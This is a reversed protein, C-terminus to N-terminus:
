KKESATQTPAYIRNLADPVFREAWGAIFCWLAVKLLDAYPLNHGGKETKGFNCEVPDFQAGQWWCQQFDPLFDLTLIGAYLILVLVMGFVAGLVPAVWVSVSSKELNLWTILPEHRTDVQYLRMITSVAAGFAGCMAALTHATSLVGASVHLIFPLSLIAAVVVVIKAIQARVSEVATVLSYRRYLRSCLARLEERLATDDTTEIQSIFNSSIKAYSDDTSLSKLMDRFAAIRIRMERASLNDIVKIELAYIDAATIEDSDADSVAGVKGSSSSPAHSSIESRIQRSLAFLIADSKNRFYRRLPNKMQRYEMASGHQMRLLSICEVITQGTGAIRRVLIIGIRGASIGHAEGQEGIQV